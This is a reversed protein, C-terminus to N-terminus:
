KLKKLATEVAHLEQLLPDDGTPISAGGQSELKKSLVSHKNNLYDIIKNSDGDPVNQEIEKQLQLDLAKADLNEVNRNDKREM